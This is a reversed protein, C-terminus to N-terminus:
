INPLKNLELMLGDNLINVYDNLITKGAAYATLAQKKREAGTPMKIDKAFFLFGDGKRDKICGELDGIVTEFELKKNLLATQKPSQGREAFSGSIVTM